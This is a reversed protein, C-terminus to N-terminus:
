ARFAFTCHSRFRRASQALPTKSQVMNEPYKIEREREKMQSDERNSGLDNLTQAWPGAWPNLMDKHIEKEM